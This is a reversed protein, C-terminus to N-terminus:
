RMKVTGGGESYMGNRMGGWGNIKGKHNMRQRELGIGNHRRPGVVYGLATLLPNSSDVPHTSPGIETILSPWPRPKFRRTKSSASTFCKGGGDQDCVATRSSGQGGEVFRGDAGEGCRTFTRHCKQV